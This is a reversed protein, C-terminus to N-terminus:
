SLAGDRPWGSSSRLPLTLWRYGMTSLFLRRTPGLLADQRGSGLGRGGKGNGRGSDGKGAGGGKGKGGQRDCFKSVKASAKAHTSMVAKAKQNDSEKLWKTFVSDTVLGDSGACVKEEVLALKTRLAEAGGPVMADSGMSARLQIMTYRNSLLAFVGKSNNPASTYIREGLEEMAPELEELWDMTSESYATAGHMYPLAAALVLHECHMLSNTHKCLADYTKDNDLHYTQPMGTELTALDRLFLIGLSTLCMEYSLSIRGGSEAAEVTHQTRHSLLGGRPPDGVRLPSEADWGLRIEWGSSAAPSLRFSTSTRTLFAQPIDNPEAGPAKPAGDAGGAKPGDDAKRGKPAAKNRGKSKM